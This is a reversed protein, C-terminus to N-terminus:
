YNGTAELVQSLDYYTGDSRQALVTAYGSSVQATYFKVVNSVSPLSGYSSIAQNNTSLALRIPVYEVTGDNMLFLLTDNSADQGFGGLYIDVIDKTFNNITVPTYTYSDLATVWGLAYRGNVTYSNYSFTVERQSAGLTVNIGEVSDFLQYTLGSTNIAQNGRFTAQYSSNETSQSSDTEEEEGVTEDRNDEEQSTEEQPSLVKDYVLYGGMGCLAIVLLIIIVITGRSKKQNLENM